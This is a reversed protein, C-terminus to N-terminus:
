VKIETITDMDHESLVHIQEWGELPAEHITRQLLSTHYPIVQEEVLRDRNKNRELCIEPPINFILLCGFYGYRRSLERLKRRADPQLATSDAVTFRGLFLRKQIIFHFLEFADRNVQQNNEDDCILARCHDSSVITTASFRRAAFTSKGSGAPGCLILLTRRPVRITKSTTM